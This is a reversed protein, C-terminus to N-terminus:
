DPQADALPRAPTTTRLAAPLPRSCVAGVCNRLRDLEAALLRVVRQEGPRNVLNTVERPDSRLDYLERERSAHEVYLYNGTRVGQSFRLPSPGSSRVLFNDSEETDSGVARPGTETLIGRDWGRDGHKAVGLLSVGDVTGPPRVGAADLVTPAFDIMTFPDTRVQGAPIGPGRILLPIRLSPEYPLIKGQRMRHEGLFYGNDSTFVVYTNRLQGTERLTSIMTAVQNDVLSLAEARQRADERVGNQEAPTLAPLDRIFFPKDRVDAEGRYGPAHRIAKDFTGWVRRPRAPNQFIQRTGDSRLVPKPDDAEGPRGHHPAVFSLWSFFPRPSAARARLTQRTIQGFLSTQYVGQHPVLFGNDNLTTDFYRYTGGDLATGAQLGGDVAGQWDTWGPPVYRLSSTGDRLRQVGYGNLYKGLFLTDYGADNLWVPLTSRDDLAQFGYPPAQSWVHHNHSYEGTIFSARAPCCLPQPSFANTFRVGHDGILHRVHPMFRLDDNRADDTMIVMVNPRSPSGVLPDVSLTRRPERLPTTQPLPSPEDGQGLAPPRAPVSPASVGVESAETRHVGITLVSLAALVLLTSTVAAAPRRAM